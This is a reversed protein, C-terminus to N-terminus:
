APWGEIEHNARAQAYKVRVTRGEGRLLCDVLWTSEEDAVIWAAFDATLRDSTGPLEAWPGATIREVAVRDSELLAVLEDTRRTFYREARDLAAFHRAADGEPSDTRLM